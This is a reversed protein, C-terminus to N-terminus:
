VPMLAYKYGDHLHEAASEPALLDTLFMRAFQRQVDYVRQIATASDREILKSSIPM